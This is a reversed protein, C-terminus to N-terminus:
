DRPEMPGEMIGWSALMDSPLIGSQLIGGFFIPTFNGGFFYQHFIKGRFSYQHSIEGWFYYQHLIEAFFFDNYFKRFFFITTFNGEFFNRLVARVIVERHQPPRLLVGGRVAVHGGLGVGKGHGLVPAVEGREGLVKRVATLWDSGEM